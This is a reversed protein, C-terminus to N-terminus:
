NSPAVCLPSACATVTYGSCASCPTGAKYILQNLYNGAPSYNCVVITGVGPCSKVGCGLKVTKAWAMQSWHGIGRNFETTTLNLNPNVGYKALESWWLDAANRLVT